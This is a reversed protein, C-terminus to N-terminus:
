RSRRTTVMWVVRGGRSRLSEASSGAAPPRTAADGSRRGHGGEAHGGLVGHRLSGSALARSSRLLKLQTEVLLESCTTRTVHCCSVGCRKTAGDSDQFPLSRFSSRLESEPRNAIRLCGRRRRPPGRARRSPCRKDTGSTGNPRPVLVSLFTTRNARETAGKPAADVACNPTQTARIDASARPARRTVADVDGDTRRGSVSGPAAVPPLAWTGTLRRHRQAVSAHRRLRAFRGV